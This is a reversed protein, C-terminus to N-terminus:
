HMIDLPNIRKFYLIPAFIWVRFKMFTEEFKTKQQLLDRPM